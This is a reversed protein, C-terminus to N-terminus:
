IINIIRNIDYSSGFLYSILYIIFLILGKNGYNEKLYLGYVSIIIFGIVIGFGLINIEENTDETYYIIEPFGDGRIDILKNYYKATIYHGFEHLYIAIFYIFLGILLENVNLKYEM